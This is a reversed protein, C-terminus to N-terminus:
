GRLAHPILLGRRGHDGSQLRLVDVYDEAASGAAVSQVAGIGNGVVGHNEGLGYAFRHSDLEGAFVFHGPFIVAVGPHDFFAGAQVRFAVDDRPLM